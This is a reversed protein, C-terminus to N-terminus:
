KRVRDIDKMRETKCMSHIISVTTGKANAIKPADINMRPLRSHAMARAQNRVAMAAFGSRAQKLLNCLAVAHAQGGHWRHAVRGAVHNGGYAGTARRMHHLSAFAREPAALWQRGVERRLGHHM